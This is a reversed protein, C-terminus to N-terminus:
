RSAQRLCNGVVVCVVNYSGNGCIYSDGYCANQFAFMCSNGCANGVCVMNGVKEAFNCHRVCCNGCRCLNCFVLCFCLHTPIPLLKACYIANNSVLLSCFALALAYVVAFNKQASPLTPKKHFVAVFPSQNGSTDALLTANTTCFLRVFANDTATFTCFYLTAVYRENRLARQVANTEVYCRRCATHFFAFQIQLTEACQTHFVINQKETPINTDDFCYM